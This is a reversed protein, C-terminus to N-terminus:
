YSGSDGTRDWFRSSSGSANEEDEDLDVPLNLHDEM